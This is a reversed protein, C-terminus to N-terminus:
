ILVHNLETANLLLLFDPFDSDIFSRLSAISGFTLEALDNATFVVDAFVNGRIWTYPAIVDLFIGNWGESAFESIHSKIHNLWDKDWYRVYIEPHPDLNAWNGFESHILNDISAICGVNVPGVWSPASEDPVGDRYQDWTM